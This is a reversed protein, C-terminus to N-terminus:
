VFADEGFVLRTADELTAAFRVIEELIAHPATGSQELQMRNGAPAVIM